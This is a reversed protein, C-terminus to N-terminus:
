AITAEAVSGPVIKTGPAVLSGIREGTCCIQTAETDSVMVAIDDLVIQNLYPAVAIFSDLLTREKKEM